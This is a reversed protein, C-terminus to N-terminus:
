DEQQEEDEANQYLEKKKGRIMLVGAWIIVAALVMQPLRYNLSSIMWQVEELFLFAIESWINKWLVSVGWLILGVGILKRYKKLMGQSFFDFKIDAMQFLYQDELAYFEEDDMSRLNHVHFFSYFWVIVDVLLLAPMDFTIALFIILAFVSMLSLGMKMFGM